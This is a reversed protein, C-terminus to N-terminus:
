PPDALVAALAHRGLPIVRDDGGLHAISLCLAWGKARRWTDDDVGGYASRFAERASPPLWFWAVSLDVAPDGATMDGFDVIAALRGDHVVINRPHLDGHLWRKPGAWEPSTVAREWLAEIQARDVTDGLADLGDALWRARGALPVGRYPNSPADAPSPQHLAALFAGLQEATANWDSPEARAAEEGHFWPVIAWPWPYGPGPAGVFVPAPVPLPLRPALESLWRQENAALYAAIERRPMRAALDDGVRFLVNDWGSAVETIPLGALDLHQAVLLSRVLEASLEVEAEPAAV